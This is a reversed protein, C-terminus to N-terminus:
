PPWDYATISTLGTTDLTLTDGDFGDSIRPLGSVIAPKRFNYGSTSGSDTGVTASLDVAEGIPLKFRLQAM